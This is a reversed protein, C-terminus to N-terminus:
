KTGAERKRRKLGWRVLWSGALIVVFTGVIAAGIYGSQENANAWGRWWSGALGGDESEAAAVCASCNEGILGMITILSISFAVCISLLTLYISMTSMTQLKTEQRIRRTEEDEKSPTSTANSEKTDEKTEYDEVASLAPQISPPAANTELEPLTLAPSPESAIPPPRLPHQFVAIRGEPTNRSPCAYSYVMLISDLSDILSMGATFLFPLIVIASSSGKSALASLALLAISSATDFGFGFLVGVPYMKWSRDVLKLVKGFAKFMFGGGQIEREEGPACTGKETQGEGAEVALSTSRQRKRQKYIRILVITNFLAVLFLFSASVSAGVIGGVESVGGLRSYVSVSVAIAINVAIVITSHGLSFFLGPTVPLSGLTIMNRTANDIACIHDADLGHRLGLTWALIGIGLLNTGDRTLVVAAGGWCAANAVLEILLLLSSRALLTLRPLRSIKM